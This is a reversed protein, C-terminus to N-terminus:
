RFTEGRNKYLHGINLGVLFSSERERVCGRVCKQLFREQTLIATPFESSKHIFDAYLREFFETM